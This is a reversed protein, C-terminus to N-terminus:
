VALQCPSPPLSASLPVCVEHEVAVVIYGYSAIFSCLQSYMEECGGLGHSFLVLPWKGDEAALPPPAELCPHYAYTLVARFLEAPLAAYQSLGDIAEPRWYPTRRATKANGAPYLIQVAVSGPIRVRRVGVAYKGPMQVVLHPYCLLRLIRSAASALM